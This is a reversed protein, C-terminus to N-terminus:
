IKKNIDLKLSFVNSYLGVSRDGIDRLAYDISLNWLKLGVGFNPQFSTVRNGFDTTFQINGLGLRLFFMQMFSAELGLHPDFSFPDSKIVTNRKGDTTMDVNMEALLGFEKGLKFNRAAGLILT